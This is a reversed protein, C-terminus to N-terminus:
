PDPLRGLLRCLVAVGRDHTLDQLGLEGALDQTVVGPRGKGAGQGRGLLCSGLRGVHKAAGSALVLLAASTRAKLTSCCWTGAWAAGCCGGRAGM